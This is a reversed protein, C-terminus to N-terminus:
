FNVLLEKIENQIQLGLRGILFCEKDPFTFLSIRPIHWLVIM